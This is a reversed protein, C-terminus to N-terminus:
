WLIEEGSFGFANWVLVNLDREIKALGNSEVRAYATKAKAIIKSGIMSDPDLVRICKSSGKLKALKIIQGSVFDALLPPTYTVGTSKREEVNSFRAGSYARRKNSALTTV